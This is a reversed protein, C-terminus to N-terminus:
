RTLDTRGHCRNACHTPCHIQVGLTAKPAYSINAPAGGNFDGVPRPREPMLDVQGSHAARAVKSWYNFRPVTM